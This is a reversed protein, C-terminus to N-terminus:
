AQVAGDVKRVKPATAVADLAEAEKRKLDKEPQPSEDDHFIDGPVKKDGELWGKKHWDEVDFDFEEGDGDSSAATEPANTKEGEEARRKDAEDKSLLM